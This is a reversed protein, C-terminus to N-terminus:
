EGLDQSSRLGSSTLARRQKRRILAKESEVLLFVLVAGGLIPLWHGPAMDRTAFLTQFPGLYTFALQMLTVLAVAILAPRSGLLGRLSLSSATLFRANFLYAIEGAVLANVAVTRALELTAGADRHWLFLGYCYVVLLLSVFALRWILFGSLLPETRPRPPRRMVDVEPPEFALAIALTVATIMNVWLIQVPSLPLLGGVAIALMVLLAEAGNTPLVFLIGKKINDYVTRGEEVGAVISAFNDDALVMEAAEKAAETGKIGMAVGIDARKLAPADNVGDGTMATVKGDAQLAEVLRLKHEPSTRAFVANNEIVERLQSDDLRDIQEGSIANEGDGIGLQHGIAAATVVHDGTIMRVAIGASRCQAVASVAEERPPDIFGVLGLPRLGNDLDSLDLNRQASDVPRWALALVRYGSRALAHLRQEWQDRSPIGESGHPLDCRALISEPAGKVFLYGHGQHDHHLTAMLRYRSDFPIVDTRPSAAAERGPDLGAKIAATLLAVEMPDGQWEWGCETYILTADNCLSGARLLDLLDPQRHPDIGQDDTLFGGHPEYGSGTVQYRQRPTEIAQVTMENRTLTGTKDSCIVSVSGLTEVAPLRRIIANRRAMRQVGLALTITIIAPLGEPIAAVALAVSALFMESLPEHHVLTGLAFALAAVVLITLTVTRGFGAMQELLPTTLPRIEALLRSIRGIETASGTAVVVGLGQGATVLTGSYAMSSRDGLTAGALVPESRKAVAMSEGTLAAEEIRLGHARLLRLDAPVRDGAALQVIDGPVLTDAPLNRIRGGRLVSVHPSLMGRIAEMAQEAKGEQVFGILANITVVGFIVTADIWHGLVSTIFGAVLLIHILINNFQALLRRSASRRRPAPLRNPGYRQRREEVSARDLGQETTELAQLVAEVPLAHWAPTDGRAPAEKM